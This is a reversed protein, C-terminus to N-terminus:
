ALSLFVTRTFSFFWNEAGVGRVIDLGPLSFSNHIEVNDNDNSLPTPNTLHAEFFFMVESTLWVLNTNIATSQLM